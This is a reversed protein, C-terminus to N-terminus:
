RMIFARASSGVMYEGQEYGVEGLLRPKVHAEQATLVNSSCLGRLTLDSGIRFISQGALQAITRSGDSALTYYRAWM